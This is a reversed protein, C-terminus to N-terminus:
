LIVRMKVCKKGIANKRAWGNLSCGNHLPVLFQSDLIIQSHAGQGEAAAIRQNAFWGRNM